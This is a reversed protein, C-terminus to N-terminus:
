RRRSPDGINQRAGHAVRIDHGVQGVVIEAQKEIVGLPM